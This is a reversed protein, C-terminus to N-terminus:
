GGHREGGQLDKTRTESVREREPDRKGQETGLPVILFLIQVHRMRSNVRVPYSNCALDSARELLKKM